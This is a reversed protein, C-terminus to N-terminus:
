LRKVLIKSNTRCTCIRRIFDILFGNSYHFLNSYIDTVM